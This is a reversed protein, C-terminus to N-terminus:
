KDTSRCQADMLICACFSYHPQYCFVRLATGDRQNPLIADITQNELACQTLLLRWKPVPKEFLSFFSRNILQYAPLKVYSAYADNAYRLVFDRTDANRIGNVPASSPSQVGSKVQADPVHDSANSGTVAELVFFPLPFMDFGRFEDLVQTRLEPVDHEGATAAQYKHIASRIQAKHRRSYPVRINDTLVIDSDTMHQYYDLSILCGRSVRLFPEGSLMGALANMTLFIRVPPANYLFITCLKDEVQAYIINSVPIKCEKRNVMVTITQNVDAM